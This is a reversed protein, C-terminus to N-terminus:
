FDHTNYLFQDIGTAPNLVVGREFDIFGREMAEGITLLEGTQTDIIAPASTSILDREVAEQLSVADGTLPDTFMLTSVNIVGQSIAEHLNIPEETNVILDKAAADLFSVPEGYNPDHLKGQEPDLIGEEVARKISIREGTKPDRISLSDTNILKRKIAEDLTILEEHLPDRFKGTHSDFYGQKIASELTLPQISRVLIDRNLAEDLTLKEDQEADLCTGKNANFLNNKQAECLNFLKNDETNRVLTTFPSIIKTTLAHKIRLKEGTNPNTIKGTDPDYLGHAVCDYLSPHKTFMYVINGDVSERVPIWTNARRDHILGDDINVFGEELAKDIAFVEGTSTNRITASCPLLLGLDMAEKLNYTEGSWIDRFHLTDVNFMGSEIAENLTVPRRLSILGGQLAEKFSLSDGSVPDVVTGAKPNFLNNEIAEQLSWTEGTIPNRISASTPDILDLQLAKDLSIIEGTVTKYTCNEFNIAGAQNAEVLSVKSKVLLGGKLAEGLPVMRNQRVDAVKLTKPDLTQQALAEDLTVYTGAGMRVSVSQGDIVGQTLAEDISLKTGTTPERVLAEEIDLVQQNVATEFDFPKPIPRIYGSSLADTLPYKRKTVADRVTSNVVDLLGSKIFKEIKQVKGTKANFLHSNNSILGERRANSLTKKEGTIPDTFVRSTPNYLGYQIAQYLTLPKDAKVICGWHLAEDLTLSEKQKLDIFKGSKADVLGTSRAEALNVALGSKTNKIAPLDTRLFMKMAEALTVEKNHAPEKFKGTESNYMNGKLCDYLTMPEYIVPKEEKDSKGDSAVLESMESTSGLSIFGNEIAEEISIVKGSVPNRFTGAQQDCLGIDVAEQMTLMRRKTLTRKAPTPIKKTFVDDKKIKPMEEGEKETEAEWIIDDGGSFTFEKKRTKHVITEQEFFTEESDAAKAKRDYPEKKSITEEPQEETVTLISKQKQRSDRILEPRRIKFEKKPEEKIHKILEMEDYGPLNYKLERRTSDREDVTYSKITRVSTSRQETTVSENMDGNQEYPKQSMMGRYDILSDAWDVHDGTKSCRLQGTNTDLLGMDVALHVSVTEGTDPHKIGMKMSEVLTLDVLGQKSAESLPIRKGSMKDVYEMNQIDIIGLKLAEQLSMRDNTGPKVVGEKVATRIDSKFTKSTVETTCITILGRDMAEQLSLEEKSNVNCVKGGEVMKFGPSTTYTQSYVSETFTKAPKRDSPINLSMEVASPRLKHVSFVVPHNEVLHLTKTSTTQMAYQSTVPRKAAQLKKDVTFSIKTLFGAKVADSLSVYEGSQTNCIQYTHSDVVGQAVADKLTMEIGSLPDIILTNETSVVGQRIADEMTLKSGTKPDTITGTYPDIGRMDDYASMGEPRGVLTARTLIQQLPLKEGTRTDVAELDDSSIVGEDIAQKITMEVGTTPDRIYSGYGSLLGREVATVFTITESTNVDTITGKSPDIRFNEIVQMATFTPPLATDAICLKPVYGYKIAHSFTERKRTDTTTIEWSNPHVIGQQVAEQLTLNIGTVPDRIITQTVDFYGKSLGQELTVRKGTRPDTMTGVTLDVKVARMAHDSGKVEVASRVVFVIKSVLGKLVAETMSTKEGTTSNVIEWTTGDVINHEVAESLTFFTGSVPDRVVSGEKNILGKHIAEQLTIHEGTRVDIVEGTTTDIKLQGTGEVSDVVDAGAEETGYGIMKVEVHRSATADDVEVANMKGIVLKSVTMPSTVEPKTTDDQMEQIQLSPEYIVYQQDIAQRLNVLQGSQGMYNGQCDLLEKKLAKTLKVNKGSPQVVLASKGDIFSYKVTEEFTMEFDSDPISFIGTEPNLLGRQIARRLSLGERPIELETAYKMLDYRNLMKRKETTVEVETQKEYNEKSSAVPVIVYLKEILAVAEEATLIGRASAETPMCYEGTRIDRVTGTSPDILGQVISEFITIYRSRHDLLGSQSSLTNHLQSSVIDNAGAEALTLPKANYTDVFCGMAVDVVNQEVAHNFTLVTNTKTDKVADIDFVLCQRTAVLIQKKIAESLKMTEGTNADEIRCFSNLLGKKLAENVSLIEKTKTDLICPEGADLVGDAVAELITIKKGTTQDTCTGRAEDILGKEFGELLTYPKVIFLRDKAVYLTYKQNTTQNIYEATQVNVIGQTIAELLTVRKGTESDVVEKMHPNIHGKGIAMHLSLATGSEKNIYDASKSDIREKLLADYLCEGMSFPREILTVLERTLAETLSVIDGTHENTFDGTHVDIAGIEIAYALTLHSPWLIGIQFLYEKVEEVIIGAQVAEDATMLKRTKPNCFMGTKVDYLGGVIADLLSIDEGTNPDHIGYHGVIKEYLSTELLRKQVADELSMKKGTKLDIFEGTKDDILGTSLAENLTYLEGSMTNRVGKINVVLLTRQQEPSLTYGQGPTVEKIDLPKLSEGDAVLFSATSYQTLPSSPTQENMGRIVTPKIEEEIKLQVPEEETESVSEVMGTIGINSKRLINMVIM